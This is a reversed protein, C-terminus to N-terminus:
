ILIIKSILIYKPLDNAKKKKKKSLPPTLRWDLQQGGKKEQGDVKKKKIKENVEHTNERKLKFIQKTSVKTAKMLQSPCIVTGIMTSVGSVM